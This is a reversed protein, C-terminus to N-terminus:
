RSRGAAEQAQTFCSQLEERLRATLENVDARWHGPGHPTGRLPAGVVVVVRHPRPLVRGRPLIQESGGIGVPVIPVDMKLALYAAGDQLPTLESGFSRTGEPFVAIPEGTALAEQCARLAARDASGRAVPIGGLARLVPGSLAGELVEKKALFRIRRRTIAAALPIDVGSRHTPAVIYPGARPVRETGVVRLRFLIRALTVLVARVVAYFRV